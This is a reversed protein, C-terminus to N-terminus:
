ATPDAVLSTVVWTSLKSQRDLNAYAALV